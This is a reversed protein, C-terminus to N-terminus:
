VGRAFLVWHKRALQLKRGAASADTIRLRANSLSLRVSGAVQVEPASSDLRRKQVIWSRWAEAEAEPVTHLLAEPKAEPGLGLDTTTSILRAAAEQVKEISVTEPVTLRYSQGSRVFFGLHAMMAFEISLDGSVVGDVDLAIVCDRQKLETLIFLAAHEFHPEDWELLPLAAQQFFSNRLIQVWLAQAEAARILWSGILRCDPESTMEVLVQPFDAMREVYEWEDVPLRLRQLSGPRNM